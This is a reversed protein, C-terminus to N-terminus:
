ALDGIAVNALSEDENDVFVDWIDRCGAASCISNLLVVDGYKLDSVFSTEHLTDLLHLITFPAEEKKSLLLQLCETKIKSHLSSTM